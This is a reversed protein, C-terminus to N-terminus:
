QRRGLRSYAVALLCLASMVKAMFPNVRAMGQMVGVAQNLLKRWSNFGAVLIFVKIPHRSCGRLVQQTISSEPAAAPRVALQVANMSDQQLNSITESLKANVTIGKQHLLSVLSDVVDAQKAQHAKVEALEEELDQVEEPSLPSLPELEEPAAASSSGPIPPPPPPTRLKRRRSSGRGASKVAQATSVVGSAVASHAGGSAKPAPPPLQTRNQPAAVAEAPAAAAATQKQLDDRAQKIAERAQKEIAQKKKQAAQKADAALNIESKVTKPSQPPSAPIKIGREIIKGLNDSWAQKGKPSIPRAGIYIRQLAKSLEPSEVTQWKDDGVSLFYHDRTCVMTVETGKPMPQAMHSYLLELIREAKTDSECETQLAPILNESLGDTMQKSTVNIELRLKFAKTFPSNIFREWFENSDKLKKGSSNRYEGLSKGCKAMDVYMAIQYVTFMYKTRAGFGCLELKSFEDEGTKVSLQQAFSM